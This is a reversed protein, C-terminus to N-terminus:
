ILKFHQLAKLVGDDDVSETVYTAAQKVTYEANGMAVSNDVALLMPVDNGGDGFAIAEAKTYGYYDLVRQVGVSKSANKHIIDTFTPYWRADSCNPLLPMVM